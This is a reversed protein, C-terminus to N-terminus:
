VTDHGHEDEGTLGEEEFFRELLEKMLKLDELSWVEHRTNPFSMFVHERGDDFIRRTVSYTGAYHGEEDVSTDSYVREIYKNKGM